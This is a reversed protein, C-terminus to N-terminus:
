KMCFVYSLDITENGEELCLDIHNRALEEPSPLKPMRVQMLPLKFTGNPTKLEEIVDEIDTGDSGLFVGSDFDRHFTRKSRKPGDNERFKQSDLDSAPQQNFWPGRFRQKRRDNTYNDASPDDDSSFLVVDSSLQPSSLRVRKNGRMSLPEFPQTWDLKPLGLDDAM